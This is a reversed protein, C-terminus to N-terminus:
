DPVPPLRRVDSLKEAIEEISSRWGESTINIVRACHACTVANNHILEDIVKHTDKGCAPCTINMSVISWLPSNM